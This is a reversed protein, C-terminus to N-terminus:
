RGTKTRRPDEPAKLSSALTEQNKTCLSPLVGRLSIRLESPSQKPHPHIPRTTHFKGQLKSSARFNGFLLVVSLSRLLGSSSCSGTHRLMGEFVKFRYTRQKPLWLLQSLPRKSLPFTARFSCRAENAM